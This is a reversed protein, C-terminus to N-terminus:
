KGTEVDRLAPIYLKYLWGAEKQKKAMLYVMQEAM